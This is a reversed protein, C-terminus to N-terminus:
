RGTGAGLGRRRRVVFRVVDAIWDRDTRLALTPAGCTRLTRHVEESHARAARAFDDRIRDTVTLERVQGSEADRLVIEGVDPLEMDRPDLVEVGLVEHHGGVARLPRSWDIPGLFDSVVVALGRRREPRRLAEIAADLDGRVGDSARHTTAITKLLNLAHARGARAPIRVIQDGTAVIAGIRNGGGLTLHTIASCAAVALDRKTGNVTGFDLSASMDVVLWTELERDAVMQRVHAHTTRATVSWDMRRVDDGPQYMRAEGPESGPGPILGLHDGQLVGDLKRRVTIELTKLAATLTPDDLTGAGFSPLRDADAM